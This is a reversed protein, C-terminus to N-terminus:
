QVSEFSGQMWYVKAKFDWGGETYYGYKITLLFYSINLTTESWPVLVHMEQSLVCILWLLRQGFLFYWCLKLFCDFGLTIEGSHCEVGSYLVFGHADSGLHARFFLHLEQLEQVLVDINKSSGGGVQYSNASFYNLMFQLDVSIRLRLLLLEV